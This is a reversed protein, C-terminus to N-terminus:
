RRRVAGGIAGGTAMLLLNIMGLCGGLAVGGGRLWPGARENVQDITDTVTDGVIPLADVFPLGALWVNIQARFFTVIVIGVFISGILTIVGGIIGATLGRGLGGRRADSAAVMGAAVGILLVALLNVGYVQLLTLAMFAALAVFGFVV